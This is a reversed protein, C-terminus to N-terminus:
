SFLINLIHFSPIQNMGGTKALRLTSESSAQAARIMAKAVHLPLSIILFQTAHNVPLTFIGLMIVQFVLAQSPKHKSCPNLSRPQTNARSAANQKRWRGVLAIHTMFM